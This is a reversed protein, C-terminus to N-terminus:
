IVWEILVIKEGGRKRREQEIFLIYFDNTLTFNQYM